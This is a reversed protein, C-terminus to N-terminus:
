RTKLLLRQLISGFGAGGLMCTIPLWIPGLPIGLITFVPSYIVGVTGSYAASVFPLYSYPALAKDTQRYADWIAFVYICPYFLLWQMDTSNVADLTAGRFSLGIATNLNAKCNILLELFIFIIGKFLQGNLIQAFGPFAISWLLTELRKDSQISTNM